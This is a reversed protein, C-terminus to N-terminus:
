YDKLQVPKVPKSLMSKLDMKAIFYTALIWIVMLPFGFMKQIPYSSLVGLFGFSLAAIDGAVTFYVGTILLFSLFSNMKLSLYKHGVVALSFFAFPPFYQLYSMFIIAQLRHNGPEKALALRAFKRADANNLTFLSNLALMSAHEFNSTAPNFCKKLNAQAGFYDGLNHLIKGLAFWDSECKAAGMSEVSKMLNRRNGKACDLLFEMRNISAQRLPFDRKFRELVQSAERRQKRFLHLDFEMERLSDAESWHGLATNLHREASEYCEADLEIRVQLILANLKRPHKSLIAKVERRAADINGARLYAQATELNSALANSEM